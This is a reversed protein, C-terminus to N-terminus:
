HQRPMEQERPYQAQPQEYQPQQQQQQPYQYQEGGEQYTEPVETPQYGQEYRQYPNQPVRMSPMAPTNVKNKNFFHMTVWVIVVVFIGMLALMFLM